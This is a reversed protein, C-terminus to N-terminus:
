GASAVEGLVKKEQRRQVSENRNLVGHALSGVKKQFELAWCLVLGLHSSLWCPAALVPIPLTQSFCCISSALSALFLCIELPHHSQGNYAEDMSIELDWTMSVKQAQGKLGQLPARLWGQGNISFPGPFYPPDQTSTINM